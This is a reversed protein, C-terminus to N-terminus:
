PKTVSAAEAAAPRTGFRVALSSNAPFEVDQGASFITSYASVAMGWWGLAAGAGSAAGSAVSAESVRELAGNDLGPVIPNVQLALRASAQNGDRDSGGKTRM